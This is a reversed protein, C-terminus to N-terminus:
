SSLYIRSGLSATENEFNLIQANSSSTDNGGSTGVVSMHTLRNKGKM